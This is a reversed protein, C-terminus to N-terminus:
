RRPLLEFEDITPGESARLILLRVRRATVADFALPAAADITTGRHLTEWTGDLDRQLEFARVRQGGPGWEAIRAGAFTVPAPFEVLLWAEKTGSDTAWRTGDDGDIAQRPAYADQQQFVNSATAVAGRMLTPTGIAPLDMASGDLDLQVLTCDPRQDKAAVRLVVGHEDQQVRVEGGTRLKSALIRRGIAPLTVEDGHWQLVHVFVTSGRRTSVLDRRPLWPGGRTDRVSDGYRQLWDGLERLRAAQRDEIRGDPMPGINLLLNGDGGACRLLTQLVEAFSKLQDDPKWAWQTCLTICSEWPRQDQHRGVQQEPTDYDGPNHGTQATTGAMGQRGKGVRNNVLIGPQLQQCYRYLDEGLEPTWPKEWEGDFWFLGIPGCDQVLEKLQGKLYDVYRPLDPGPKQTSGGPSGLPYFPHRWDCISHYAGFVLGHKRCAAALEKSVDRCFPTHAISYDTLQSDWLCFGDHHKTTLVVYGAGAAKALSAWADADFQQPDFRAYLEDYEEIPVQAGRSWGIETGRLSVPGWHVFIGLRASAWWQMREPYPKPGASQALGVASSLLALLVSWPLAKAQM